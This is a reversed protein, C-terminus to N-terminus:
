NPFFYKMSVGIQSYYADYLNRYFGYHDARSRRNNVVPNADQAFNLGLELTKQNKFAYRFTITANYGYVLTEYRKHPEPLGIDEFVINDFNDNVWLLYKLDLGGCFVISSRSTLRLDYFLNLPAKLSNLGIDFAVDMWQWSLAQYYKFRFGSRYKTFGLGTEIGWRKYVPVRVIANIGMGLGDTQTFDPVSHGYGVFNTRDVNNLKTQFVEMGIGYTIKQAFSVTSVLVMAATLLMLAKKDSRTAHM